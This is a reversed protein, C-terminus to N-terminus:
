GRPVAEGAHLIPRDAAAGAPRGATHCQRIIKALADGPISSTSIRSEWSVVRDPGQLAEVNAYRPTLESIGQVIALRGGEFQMEYIRRGFEDWPSIGLAPGVSVLTAASRSPNQWPTIKVLAEPAMDLVETVQLKPLYIRRLDDDVMYIPKTAVEGSQQSPANPNDAVGTISTVKGTVTRGDKLRLTQAALPAALWAVFLVAPLFSRIPPM